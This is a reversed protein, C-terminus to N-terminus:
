FPDARPEVAVGSSMESLTRIRAALQLFEIPKSIHMQFGAMLVNARDEPRVYATIAAAPTRGGRDSPRSRLARIFEYGDVKPLQIDSLIVHFQERNLITLAEEATTSEVTSAGASRLFTALVGRTDAVDDLILIKLGSLTKQAEIAIEPAFRAALQPTHGTAAQRLALPLFVKFTAGREVGGSHAEVKGGHLEVLQKVIALGLGLGAFSRKTGTEGQVFPDFIRPLLEPAIGKGYDTVEVEIHSNADRLTIQIKSQRNSFRVANSLLNWIVQQLRERDGNVLGRGSDLFQEIRIDKAEAAPLLHEVAQQIVERIDVLQFELRMKGTIIRSVDLLDEILRLQSRVNREIVDVGERIRDNQLGEQEAMGILQAWGMIANLPTRLEHSLTALFEDKTRNAIEAEEKAAKLEIEIAKLETVDTLTGIMRIGRGTEDRLASGRSLFWRYSGDKHRLRFESSYYETEGALHAAIAEQRLKRDEDHVMSDTWELTIELEGPEYGLLRFTRDSWWIQDADYDYDWIGDATTAALISLRERSSELERTAAAAIQQESRLQSTLSQDRKSAEEAVKRARHRFTALFSVLIAELVFAIINVADSTSQVSLMGFPPFFILDALAASVATALLGAGLGATWAAAVVAGLFLLFPARETSMWSSLLLKVWLALAPFVIGVILAKIWSRENTQFRSLLHQMPRM